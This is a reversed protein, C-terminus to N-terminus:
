YHSQFEKKWREIPRLKQLFYATNNPVFFCPKRSFLSTNFHQLIKTTKDQKRVVTKRIRSVLMNSSTQIQSTKTKKFYDEMNIVVLLKLFSLFLNKTQKCQQSPSSKKSIHDMRSLIFAMIVLIACFIAWELNKFFHRRRTKKEDKRKLSKQNQM